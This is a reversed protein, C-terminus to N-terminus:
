GYRELYARCVEGLADGRNMNQTAQLAAEFAGLDEIWVVPRVRARTSALGARQGDGGGGPKVLTELDAMAQAMLGALEAEIKLKDVLAQLGDGQPTISATLAALKAGATEALAAMPDVTTLMLDAEDDNLDTILCPWEVDPYEDKRLHGDIITLKGGARKSYYCLLAGAIGVGTIIDRLAGRQIQPHTRWNGENDQLERGAVRRFETIRDRITTNM